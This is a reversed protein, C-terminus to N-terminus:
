KETTKRRSKRQKKSIKFPFAHVVYMLRSRSSEVIKHDENGCVKVTSYHRRIKRIHSFYVMICDNEVLSRTPINECIKPHM